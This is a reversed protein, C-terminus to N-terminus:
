LLAQWVEHYGQNVMDILFTFTAFILDVVCNFFLIRSYPRMEEETCVWILVLLLANFLVSPVFATTEAHRLFSKICLPKMATARISLQVAFEVVPLGLLNQLRTSADCKPM